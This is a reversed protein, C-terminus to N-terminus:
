KYISSRDKFYGGERPFNIVDRPNFAKATFKTYYGSKTSDYHGSGLQLHLHTGTSCRDWTEYAPNGGVTGVVTNITVYDGVSVNITALHFYGSTYNVGNITHEIYLMNGGCNAKRTIYSVRGNAVSYVNAGHGTGAIDMGYHWTKQGWPYYWGYNASVTGNATPRAFKTGTLVYASNQQALRTQCADLDETLKCGKKEWAKIVEEQSAIDEEITVNEELIEGLQTDLSLLEKELEKQKNNLSIKKNALDKKKNENQKIMENYEDVLKDNYTSLQEAIALRYIFDTFDAADFIYEMYASEGSSVQYYNIIKKVEEQKEIIDDNLREIEKTLNETEKEIQSIENNISSVKAKKNKIEQETFKKKNANEQAKKKTVELEEKLTKLSKAEVIDTKSTPIFSVSIMAIILFLYGFKRLYKFM